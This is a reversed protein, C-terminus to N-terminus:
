IEKGSISFIFFLFYFSFPPLDAGESCGAHREAIGSEAGGSMSCLPSGVKEFRHVLRRFALGPLSKMKVYDHLAAWAFQCPSADIFEFSSM